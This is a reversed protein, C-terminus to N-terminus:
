VRTSWRDTHASPRSRGANACPPLYTHQVPESAKSAGCQATRTAGSKQADIQAALPAMLPRKLHSHLITHIARVHGMHGASARRCGGARGLKINSRLAGNAAKLARTAPGAPGFLYFDRMALRARAAFHCTRSWHSWCTHHDAM